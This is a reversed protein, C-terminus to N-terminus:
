EHNWRAELANLTEEIGADVGTIAILQREVMALREQADTWRRINQDKLVRQSEAFRESVLLKAQLASYARTAEDHADLRRRLEVELSVITSRSILLSEALTLPDEPLHEKRCFTLHDQSMIGRIMRVAKTFIRM